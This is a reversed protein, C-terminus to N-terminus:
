AEFELGGGHSPYKTESESFPRQDSERPIGQFTVAWDGSQHDAGSRDTDYYTRYDMWSYQKDGLQSVPGHLGEQELDNQDSGDAAACGPREVRSYLLPSYDSQDRALRPAHRCAYIRCDSRLFGYSPRAKAARGGKARGDRGLHVGVFQGAGPGSSAGQWSGPQSSCTLSTVPWRDCPGPWRHRLKSQPSEAPTSLAAPRSCFGNSFPMKVCQYLFSNCFTYNIKNLTSCWCLLLRVNNFCLVVLPLDTYSFQLCIGPKIFDCANSTISLFSM